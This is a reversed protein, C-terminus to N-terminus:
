LYCLAIAIDHSLPISIQKNCLSMVQTNEGIEFLPLLQGQPHLFQKFSTYREKHLFCFYQTGFIDLSKSFTLMASVYTLVSCFLPFFGVYFLRSVVKLSSAMAMQLTPYYDSLSFLFSIDSFVCSFLNSWNLMLVELRFVLLDFKNRVIETWASNKTVACVSNFTIFHLDWLHYFVSEM